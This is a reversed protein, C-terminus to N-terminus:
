ENNSKIFHYIFMILYIPWLVIVVVQQWIRLKAKNGFSNALVDLAVLYIIGIMIYILINM